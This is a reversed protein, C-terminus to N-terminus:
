GRSATRTIISWVWVLAAPALKAAGLAGIAALALGLQTTASTMDLAGNAFASSAVLGTAVVATTNVAKQYKGNLTKM